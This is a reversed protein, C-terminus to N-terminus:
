NRANEYEVFVEEVDEPLEWFPLEAVIEWPGYEPSDGGKLSVSRVGQIKVVFSDNPRYYSYNGYRINGTKTNLYLKNNTTEKRKSMWTPFARIPSIKLLEKM